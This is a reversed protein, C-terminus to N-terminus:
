GLSSSVFFYCHLAIIPLGSSGDFPIWCSCCMGISIHFVIVHQFMWPSWLFFVGYILEKFNEDSSNYTCFKYMVISVHSQYIIVFSLYMANLNLHLTSLDQPRDWISKHM